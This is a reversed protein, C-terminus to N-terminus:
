RLAPLFALASGSCTGISGLVVLPGNARIRLYGSRIDKEVLGTIRASPSLSIHRPPAAPRGETDLLEIFVDAQVTLLENPNAIAFGTYYEQGNVVFPLTWEPSALTTIPSLMAAGNAECHISIDGISLFTGGDAARIRIYGSILPPPFVAPVAIHFLALVDERIGQGPGLTLRVIDGIGRGRDDQALLELQVTSEGPNILNLVSRYLLASGSAFHGAMAQSEPIIEEQSSGRLLRRSLPKDIRLWGALGRDSVVKMYGDFTRGGMNNPPLMDRFSESIRITHSGRAPLTVLLSGTTRGDLAILGARANASANGPNVLTLFTETHDLETFGTNVAVHNLLITAAPESVPGTGDLIADTGSTLYSILGPESSDVRIWGDQPDHPTGLIERVLFARQAGPLLRLYGTRAGTGDAETWTVSADSATGALNVLSLGLFGNSDSEFVPFFSSSVSDAAPVLAVGATVCALM